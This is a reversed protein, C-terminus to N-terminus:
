VCVLGRLRELKKEGIGSVRMLDDVSAFPGNQERDEVIARATAEGVGPLTDLAAEDATNLNVPGAPDAGAGASGASGTAQPLSEGEAPVHVKEGDTVPAALNLQTTDAGEALGGAAEVADLARSGAALEYVGPSAVAGDVHVLLPGAAGGSAAPGASGDGEGSTAASTEGQGTAAEPAVDRGRELVVGPGAARVWVGAAVALAVLLACALAVGTRGSVGFRRARRARSGGPQAMVVM